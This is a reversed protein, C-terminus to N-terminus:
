HKVQTNAVRNEIRGLLECGSLGIQEALTALDRPDSEDPQSVALAADIPLKRVLELM